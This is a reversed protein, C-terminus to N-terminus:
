VRHDKFQQFVYSLFIDLEENFINTLRKPVLKHLKFSQPANLGEFKLILLDHLTSFCLLTSTHNVHSLPCFFSTDILFLFIIKIVPRFRTPRHIM